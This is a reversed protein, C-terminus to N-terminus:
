VVSKRDLDVLDEQGVIVKHIEGKVRDVLEGFEAAVAPTITTSMM